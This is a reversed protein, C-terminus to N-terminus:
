VLEEEEESICPLIINFTTGVNLKSKIEIRGKHEKIIQFCSSLGLGIGNKKTTFFPTGIKKITKESIGIGNDTRKNNNKTLEKKIWKNNNILKM